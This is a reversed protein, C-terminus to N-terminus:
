RLVWARRRRLLVVIGSRLINEGLSSLIELDQDIGTEGLIEKVLHELFALRQEGHRWRLRLLLLRLLLRRGGRLLLLENRLL